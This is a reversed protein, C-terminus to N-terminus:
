GRVVEQAAMLYAITCRTTCFEFVDPEKRPEWMTLISQVLPRPERIGLVFWQDNEPLVANCSDCLHARSM